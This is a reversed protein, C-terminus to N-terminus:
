NGFLVNAADIAAQNVPQLAAIKEAPTASRAAVEVLYGFYEYNPILYYSDYVQCKPDTVMSNVTEDVAKADRFQKYYTDKFTVNMAEAGEINKREDFWSNIITATKNATEQDLCAPICIPTPIMNTCNHGSPGAPLMVYGFEDQMEALYTTIIWTQSVLMGIQGNAFDVYASDWADGSGFSKVYGKDLLGVSWTLGELFNPKSTGDVFKGSEDRDVFVAGNGYIGVCMMECDNGGFAYIDTVGDNNTDQCLKACLEEFHAWDWQGSAQLQYPLEPDVGAESLLRKNYLIGLRPEDEAPRAAYVKGNITFYDIIKKSWKPDNEFDFADLTSLDYLLGQAAMSTLASTEAYFAHCAPDNAIFSNVLVDSYNGKNQLGIESFTFNMKKEMEHHYDSVMQDWATVPSKEEYVAPSWWDGLVFSFGGLDVDPIGSKEKQPDKTKDGPEENGKNNEEPKEGCAAVSFVMSVALGIAALKKFRM